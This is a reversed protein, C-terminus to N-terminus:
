PSSRFGFRHMWNLEDAQRELASRMQRDYEQAREELDGGGGGRADAGEMKPGVFGDFTKVVDETAAEKGGSDEVADYFEQNRGLSVLGIREGTWVLLDDAEGPGTPIIKRVVEEGHLAAGFTEPRGSIGAASTSGPRPFSEQRLQYSNINWRRAITRGDREVWKLGGDADSFVIRTGQTAVSLLKSSSINQRNQYSYIGASTQSDTMGSSTPPEETSVDSDFSSSNQTMSPAWPVEPISSTNQPVSYLELSGRGNYEGCSILTGRPESPPSYKIGRPSYPLYALASLRASSHIVYELRPFFRRDYNLISPFRGAVMISNDTQHLISLPGPELQAFSSLRRRDQLYSNQTHTHPQSDSTLDNTGFGTLPHIQFRRAPHINREDDKNPFFAVFDELDSKGEPSSSRDRSPKRPDLVHLSFSTGVTLPQHPNHIQSLATISWAYRTQSVVRLTDLDVENLLNGVAVYAHKRADDVSICDTVGSFALARRADSRSSDSHATSDSFLIGPLSRVPKLCLRPHRSPEGDARRFDWVCLSGDELPGVLKKGNNDKFLAAGRVDQYQTNQPPLWSASLQAHRAIYESYWDITESPDSLDWEATARAKNSM